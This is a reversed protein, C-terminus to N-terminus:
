RSCACRGRRHNAVANQTIEIGRRTLVKAIAVSTISRDDLAALLEAYEDKPLDDKALALKCRVVRTGSNEEAIEDLIGM